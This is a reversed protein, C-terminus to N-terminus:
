RWDDIVLCAPANHGASDPRQMAVGLLETKFGEAQMCEYAERRATNVGAVLRDCARDRAFAECAALLETFTRGADPRPRAAAFKVYTTGSGAETGAGVHCVAFADVRGDHQVIVTDGLRQEDAARIEGALSLGDAIEGAVLECGSLVTERSDGPAQSLTSYTTPSRPACPSKAMVATLYQPRFGFRQYLGIHMTSHPFTFLGARVSGWESVDGMVAETLKRGLGRNWHTPRVALPGLVAFKGWRSAVVIGVLEGDEYAGWCSCHASRARPGVLDADGMFAHPDPLGIYTGFAVRFLDTGAQLDRPALRQLACNM